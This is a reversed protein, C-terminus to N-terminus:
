SSVHVLPRHLVPFNVSNAIFCEANAEEHLALARAADAGPALTVVPCLLAEVIRMKGDKFTMTATCTDEYAVVSIGARACLALYSLLHCASVAALLLEEPNPLSEDGRYAGAASGTLTPKGEVAFTYERSYSAYDVVAGKAAGTWVTHARFLHERAM